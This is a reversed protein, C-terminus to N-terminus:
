AKVKQGSSLTVPLCCTDANEVDFHEGAWFLTVLPGSGVNTINHTHLTPIDIAQPNDGSVEYTFVNDDMVKRLRIKAQGSLVLFREIKKTHFHDGRTVGPHTTSVFVQGEGDVRIAEFLDGRDDAHLTLNKCRAEHPLYSRWTNFLRLDLSDDLNPIADEQYRSVVRQLRGLLESVKIPTGEPRAEGSFQTAMRQWIEAAVDQCHLLCLQGDNDIHPTEGNALQHSFTSVVSNYFPKGHEGFVHPLILNCFKGGSEDAWEAFREGATRKSVGYKSDGDAHTSSSYIVQPKSNSKKLFEVLRDALEVNVKAIEDEDGRNMGALHVVVDANEVASLLHEDDNFLTRNCCVVEMPVPLTSGYSANAKTFLFVRLHWGILGDSGTIVIKSPMSDSKNTM